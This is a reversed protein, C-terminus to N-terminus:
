EPDEEFLKGLNAWDVDQEDVFGSKEADALQKAEEATLKTYDPDWALVLKKVLEHAFNQEEEPFVDTDQTMEVYRDANVELEAISIKTM